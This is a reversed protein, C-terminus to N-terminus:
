DGAVKDLARDELEKGEGIKISKRQKISQNFVLFFYVNKRFM